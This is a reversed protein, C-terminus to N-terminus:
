RAQPTSPLCVVVGPQCIAAFGPQPLAADGIPASHRAAFESGSWTIGWRHGRAHQHGQRGDRRQRGGQFGQEAGGRRLHPGDHRRVAGGRAGRCRHRDQPMPAPPPRQKRWGASSPPLKSLPAVADCRRMVRKDKVADEESRFVSVLEALSLVGSGDADAATVRAALGDSVGATGLLAKVSVGGADAAEDVFGHRINTPKHAEVTTAMTNSKPEGGDPSPTSAGECEGHQTVPRPIVRRTTLTSYDRGTM